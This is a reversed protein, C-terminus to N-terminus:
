FRPERGLTEGPRIKGALLQALNLRRGPDIFPSRGLVPARRCIGVRNICTLTALPRFIFSRECL